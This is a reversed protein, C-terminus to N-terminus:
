KALAILYRHLRTTLDPKQLHQYIQHLNGCVRMLMRRPTVPALFEDQVTINRYLMYQICDTKTWIKGRNFVDIFYEETASQYRCIFHGPLGIGTVPLRLRRALMMYVLCLNIPNGTRRDMVRNLYNNEPDFYNEENGKFGLGEFIYDNFAGLIQDADGRLDVREILEAAYSDFLAQYAAVNIEPYETQALLWIGQELSLDTGETLCFALFRNDAKLRLLHRIIEQSRRRLAPENSLTLPRLWSIVQPGCSLIKQRVAQHVAPSEDGLLRILAGKQNESLTGASNIEAILGM